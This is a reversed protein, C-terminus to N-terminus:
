NSRAVFMTSDVTEFAGVVSVLRRNTPVNGPAGSHSGPSLVHHIDANPALRKSLSSRPNYCESNCTFYSVVPVYPFVNHKVESRRKLEREFRSGGGGEKLSPSFIGEGKNPSAAAAIGKGERKGM